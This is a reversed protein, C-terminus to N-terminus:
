VHDNVEEIKRFVVAVEQNTRGTINAKNLGDLLRSSNTAKASKGEPLSAKVGCNRGVVLPKAM